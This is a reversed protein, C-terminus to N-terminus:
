AIILDRLNRSIDKNRKQKKKEKITLVRCIMLFDQRFVPSVRKSFFFLFFKVSKKKRYMSAYTTM